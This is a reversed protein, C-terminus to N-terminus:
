SLSRPWSPRPAAALAPTSRRRPKFRPELGLADEAAAVLEACTASRQEPRKAMARRLVPDIAEPLEPRRESASPPEEELHAWVVALRSDRM